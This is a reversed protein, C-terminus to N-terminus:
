QTRWGEVVSPGYETKWEKLIKHNGGKTRITEGSHPNVYIKQERPKSPTSAAVFVEEPNLEPALAYAIEHVQIGHEKALERVKECIAKIATTDKDLREIQRELADRQEMLSKLKAIKSTKTKKM